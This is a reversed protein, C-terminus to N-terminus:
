YTEILECILMNICYAVHFDIEDDNFSWDDDVVDMIELLRDLNILNKFEESLKPNYKKFLEKMSLAKNKEVLLEKEGKIIASAIAIKALRMYSQSLLLRRRNEFTINLISAIAFVMEYFDSPNFDSLNNDALRYFFLEESLRSRIDFVAAEIMTFTEDNEKTIVDDGFETTITDLLKYFLEFMYCHLDRIFIRDVGNRRRYFQHISRQGHAFSHLFEKTVEYIKTTGAKECVSKLDISKAGLTKIWGYDFFTQINVKGLDYKTRIKEEEIKKDKKDAVLYPIMDQKIEFFMKKAGENKSLLYSISVQELIIREIASASSVLGENILVCFSQISFFSEAILDYYPAEKSKPNREKIKKDIGSIIKRSFDLILNRTENIRDDLSLESFKM